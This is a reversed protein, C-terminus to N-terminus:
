ARRRSSRRSRTSLDYELAAGIAFLVGSFVWFVEPLAGTQYDPIYRTAWSFWIDAIYFCFAAAAIFRWSQSFRGGWFALLLTTAMIVLLIDGVVYLLAVADAFPSLQQEIALAWGPATTEAIPEAEAAEAVAEEPAAYLYYVLTSGALGIGAVTLWQVLALNLRRSLVALFMGGGIFLYTLIFFPDGPSVAPEQQLALEWYGLLLNGIFFSLMGLGIALWVTRGSVIQPSRWNRLCLIGAGLFAGNEFIYTILGYWAPRGQDPLSISFLLFFLLAMVAWAIAALVIAQVPLNFETASKKM